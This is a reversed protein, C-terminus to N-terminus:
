SMTSATADDYVDQDKMARVKDAYNSLNKIRSRTKWLEVHGGMFSAEFAELFRKAHPVDFLKSDSILAFLGGMDRWAWISRLINYHLLFATGRIKSLHKSAHYEEYVLHGTVYAFSLGRIAIEPSVTFFNSAVFTLLVLLFCALCSVLLCRSLHFYINCITQLNLDKDQKRM